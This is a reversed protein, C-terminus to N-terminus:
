APNFETADDFSCQDFNSGRVLLKRLHVHRSREGERLEIVRDTQFWM